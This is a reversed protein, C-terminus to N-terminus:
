AGPRFKQNAICHTKNRYQEPTSGCFVGMRRRPRNSNYFLPDFCKGNVQAWCHCGSFRDVSDQCIAVNQYGLESALFAFGAALVRCDGSGHRLLQYASESTWGKKGNCTKEYYGYHEVVWQFCTELKQKRTMSKKTIVRIVKRAQQRTHAESSGLSNMKKGSPQFYKGRQSYYAVTGDLNIYYKDKKLTIDTTQLRGQLILYYKGRIRYIGKTESPTGESDFPVGCVESDKPIKGKGNAYIIWFKKNKYLGIDQISGLKWYDEGSRLFWGSQPEGDGDVLYTEEETQELFLRRAALLFNNKRSGKAVQKGSKGVSKKSSNKNKKTTTKKGSTQKTNKKKGSCKENSKQKKESKKGSDTSSEQENEPSTPRETEDEEPDWSDTEDDNVEAGASNENNGSTQQGIEAASVLSSEAKGEWALLFFVLLILLVRKGYQLKGMRKVGQWRM